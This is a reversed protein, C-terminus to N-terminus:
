AKLRLASDLDEDGAIDDPYVSGGARLGFIAVLECVGAVTSWARLPLLKTPDSLHILILEAKGRDPQYAVKVSQGEAIWEFSNDPIRWDGNRTRLSRACVAAGYHTSFTTPKTATATV